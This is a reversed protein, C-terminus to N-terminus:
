RAIRSVFNNHSPTGFCSECHESDELEDRYRCKDCPSDSTLDIAPRIHREIVDRLNLNDIWPECGLDDGLEKLAERADALQAIAGAVQREDGVLEAALFGFISRIASLRGVEFAKDKIDGTDTM